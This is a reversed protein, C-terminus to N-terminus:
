WDFDGDTIVSRALLTAGGGNMGVVYLDGPADEIHRVFAIQRGDPSWAAGDTNRAVRLMKRNVPNVVWASDPAEVDDGGREVLIKSGDPSWKPRERDRTSLGAVLKRLDSGDRKAVYLWTRGDVGAPCGGLCAAPTSLFAIEIGSPSWALPWYTMGSTFRPTLLRPRGGRANVVFYWTREADDIWQNLAIERGSPSWVPNETDSLGVAHGTVIRRLGSGDVGITSISETRAYTRFALRKGDPSWAPRDGYAGALLRELGHGDANVVMLDSRYVPDGREDEGHRVWRYFAIRRRDPSWEPFKDGSGKPPHTVQILGRGSPGVTWLATGENGQGRSFVITPNADTSVPNAASPRLGGLIAALAVLFVSIGIGPRIFVLRM